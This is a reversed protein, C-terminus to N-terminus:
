PRREKGAVRRWIRKAQRDAKAQANRTQKFVRLLRKEVTDIKNPELNVLMQLFRKRQTTTSMPLDWADYFEPEKEEALAFLRLTRRKLDERAECTMIRLREVMQDSM